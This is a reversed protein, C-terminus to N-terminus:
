PVWQTFNQKAKNENKTELVQKEFNQSILVSVSFLCANPMSLLQWNIKSNLKNKSSNMPVM